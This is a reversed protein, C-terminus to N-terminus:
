TDLLFERLMAKITTKGKSTKLYKERRLADYKNLYAEYFILKIPLRCSTSQVLGLNHKQIRQELNGTYGIYFKTDKLSLLIYIYYFNKIMNKILLM